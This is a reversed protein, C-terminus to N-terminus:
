RGLYFCTITAEDRRWRLMISPTPLESLRLCHEDMYNSTSLSTPLTANMSTLSLANNSGWGVGGRGAGGRGVWGWRVEDWGM